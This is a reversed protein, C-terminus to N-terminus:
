AIMRTQRRDSAYMQRIRSSLKIFVFTPVSTAWRVHSESFDKLTLSRGMAQQFENNHCVRCIKTCWKNKIPYGIRAYLIIKHPFLRKVVLLLVGTTVRKASKTITGAMLTPLMLCGHTDSTQGDTRRDRVDLRIRSCLLRPLSINACPCGVDCTVRVLGELDFPRGIAQQFENNRRM